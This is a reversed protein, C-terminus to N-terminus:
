IRCDARRHNLKKRKIATVLKENTYEDLQDFTGEVFRLRDGYDDAWAQAMEFVMPDRDVGIVRDVGADLLGRAYGGAGFTGDLWTGEVPACASLIADLLVPIHPADNAARAAAAM